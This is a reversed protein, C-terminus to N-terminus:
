KREEKDETARTDVVRAKWHEHKRVLDESLGIAVEKSDSATSYEWRYGGSDRISEVTYRVGGFWSDVEHVVKGNESM